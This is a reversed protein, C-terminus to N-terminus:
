DNIEYFHFLKAMSVIDPTEGTMISYGEGQFLLWLKGSLYTSAPSTKYMMNLTSNDFSPKKYNAELIIKGKEGKDQWDSPELDSIADIKEPITYIIIDSKKFLLKFDDTGSIKFSYEPLASAISQAKEVTRNMLITEMGLDGAAIAAAKGAGGCGVILVKPRRGYIRLIEKDLPTSSHYLDLAAKGASRCANGHGGTYRSIIGSLLSVTIGTYDSNYAAIGDRTKVLINAAGIKRCSPDTIDAKLIAKEKFPATVNIGAYCDLFKRYSTEFDSGHILDYPYKGNYAAKFLDPSFSGTIPDGILGFRKNDTEEIM